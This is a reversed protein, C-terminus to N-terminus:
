VLQSFSVQDMCSWDKPFKQVSSMKRVALLAIIIGSSKVCHKVSVCSM